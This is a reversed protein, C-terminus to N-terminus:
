VFIFNSWNPFKGNMMECFHARDLDLFDAAKAMHMIEGTFLCQVKKSHPHNLGKLGQKNLPKKILGTKHAHSSNEKPTCWELNEVRNDNKIGNKHNIDSKDAPNPIFVVGVIRHVSHQTQNFFKVRVYGRKNVTLRLMKEAIVRKVGFRGYESVKGLRKIRGLSSVEYVSEYGFVSRWQENM